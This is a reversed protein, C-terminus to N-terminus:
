LKFSNIQKLVGFIKKYHLALVSLGFVAMSLIMSLYRHLGWTCLLQNLVFSMAWIVALTTVFWLVERWNFIDSWKAQIIKITSNLILFAYIFAAILTAIAPGIMGWIYYFFINLVLNIGLSAISYAMIRKSKGAATLILHVSAFRLMSDFIYLIFVPLGTVYADAYLFSIITAPAVLVMTGLTWVSYYGVKLYSSFLEASEKQRGETVRRYIYPILVVAFSSVFVELPLIKSCNTYIALEETGGLRGIVLKDLDRSLTSTIAYVGMPLGYAFIPKIHRPSIRLPHIHVGKKHLEFHFILVQVFDMALMVLYILILNKLWYVAFYITVIRTLTLCLNFLAMSKAKGVAVYLVQYFYVINALMPLLAVVPLLVKVADNSFYAALLDRGFVIFGALVVGVAIECFFVTNVIRARLEDDIGEGRRNFFYNMADVLGLLILSSGISYVLNAQSYTGYEQLTLGNSLIKASVISFLLTLVKSFALFMSDWSAGRLSIKKM